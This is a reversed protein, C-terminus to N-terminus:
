VKYNAETFHCNDLWRAVAEFKSISKSQTICQEMNGLREHMTDLDGQVGSKLEKVEKRLDEISSTIQRMLAFLGPNVPQLAGGEMVLFEATPESAPNAMSVVGSDHSLLSISQPINGNPSQSNQSTSPTQVLSSVQSITTQSADAVIFDSNNSGYYTTESMVSGSGSVSCSLIPGPENSHSELCVPLSTEKQSCTQDPTVTSSPQHMNAEQSDSPTPVQPIVDAQRDSESSSKIGSHLAPKKVQATGNVFKPNCTKVKLDTTKIQSKTKNRQPKECTSNESSKTNTIVKSTSSSKKM